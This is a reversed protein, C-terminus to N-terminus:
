VAATTAGNAAHAAHHGNTAGDHRGNQADAATNGGLHGHDGSHHQKEVPGAPAAGPERINLGLASPDINRHGWLLLFTFVPKAIIDLIGYFIAESDPHIVNGGESVGWAIPYLFWIFILLVGCMNYTRKISGGLVSAHQRGDWVLAYAVYLFAVCGFVFYGWKYRTEILAGVLGCVVMIWDALIAILITPWPLGATLLLDLLLLPTTVFWDIYRVYFIERTGASRVQSSSRVFEAQIPTQGLNAGMSFYSIAAVFLLGASIYHFLRNRRPKTLAWGMVGLSSVTMIACVTFYWDSGRTTIALNAQQGVRSNVDLAENRKDLLNADM